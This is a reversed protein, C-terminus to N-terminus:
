GHAYDPSWACTSALHYRISCRWPYEGAGGVLREIEAFVNTPKAFVNGGAAFDKAMNVNSPQKKRHGLGAGMTRMAQLRPHRREAKPTARQYSLAPAGCVTNLSIEHAALLHEVDDCKAQGTEQVLIEIIFQDCQKVFKVVDTWQKVTVQAPVSTSVADMRVTSPIVISVHGLKGSIVESVAPLRRPVAEQPEGKPLKLLLV